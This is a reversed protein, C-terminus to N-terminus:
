TGSKRLPLLDGNNKLLVFSEAAIKRAEARHEPTFIETKSRKEDCFKYPDEFLGLKYKAELILRCAADIKAMTVRGEKLSKPLTTLLGEGVMDMDIGANLAMASATQLDGIGHDIMENIGTYDTVVFGKFGWQKRLVDTLLWKNGTAPIGDVENFSAMVSGVGAIVAAQYPPFYENYMRIRSMDTTNYDRGGEAAGYLAFHKVCALIQNNETLTGQYGRVMAQAIASGLYPDEGNGESIRGWRPDRCLDVMPSFTWNIGAASAEIAAIRASRRIADMDWSCSLGLPIPFVTEYGHIVDMGFLLPIKLRSEEVAIRQVERIKEVSKINFLGGVNGERIKKGIDSSSAQGTTIDGAVPLNLQGLKETLTMKSMLEDIFVKMRDPKGKQGFSVQSILLFCLLYLSRLVTM